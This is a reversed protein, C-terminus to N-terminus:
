EAKYMIRGNVVTMKVLASTIEVHPIEFIDRDLITFDAVFDEKILGRNRQNLGAYASGKTYLSVAEFVTLREEKQYITQSPDDPIQRTVAAQIGILPNAPEIPADSGGACTLGADLLSKWAYLYDIKSEEGIRDLAWPFDSVLFGPQIDVIVPLKAAREILEKKLLPAHILRDHGIGTLPYKEIADIVWEFALDGIAHVAIPIDLERAKKVLAQLEDYSHIAVGNTSVDDAYPQSLLATRGGLSGDAFIKMPGFEVFSDGGLYQYGSKKWEDIVGHHILLHARFPWEDASIVQRFAEYTNYFSGYYNLDETHAGTLGLQYCNEIGNKLLRKLYDIDYPPLLQNILDQANDKLIGTPEGAEDRMIKGGSPNETNKNVGAKKLAQSNVAIAHRCVRKLLVPNHPAVNDIENKTLLTKDEWLNENWGEGVLWEGPSLQEARVKISTLIDHKSKMQSLDLRLLSEGFGILHMHSDVFGPLMIAGNLNREHNMRHGFRNILDKKTGVGLIVGEETFVSDVTKGEAEMTYIKGNYWLEGM